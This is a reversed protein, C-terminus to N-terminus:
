VRHCFRARLQQKGGPRKRLRSHALHSCICVVSVFECGGGRGILGKVTLMYGQTKHPSSLSLSLSVFLFNFLPLTRKDFLRSLLFYIFLLWGLSVKHRKRLFNILKKLEQKNLELAIHENGSQNAIHFDVSAVPQRINALRDSSMILQVLSLFLFVTSLLTM